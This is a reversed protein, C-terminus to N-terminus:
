VGEQSDEKLGKLRKYVRHFIQDNERKKKSNM